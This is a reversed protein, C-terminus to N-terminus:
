FYLIVEVWIVEFMNLKDLFLNLREVVDLIDIYYLVIGGGGDEVFRDRCLFKYGFIDIEKDEVRSMLKIEIIGLFDFKIIEM